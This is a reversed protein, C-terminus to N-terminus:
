DGTDPRGDDDYESPVDDEPVERTRIPGKDADPAGQVAEVIGAEFTQGEELLERPSESDAGAVVSLGSYDGGGGGSAGARASRAKQRVASLPVTEVSQSGMVDENERVPRRRPARKTSGKKSGARASLKAKASVKSKSTTRKKASNKQKKKM